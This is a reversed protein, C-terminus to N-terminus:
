FGSPARYTGYVEKMTAMIEGLTCNVSVAHKIVPFLNENSDVANRIQLLAANCKTEDRKNRLEALKKKQNEEINLDAVPTNFEEDKDQKAHNVGIIKREGSDVDTIHKWAVDHIARQQFGLEIAKLAGGKEDIKEILGRADAAIKQTLGEVLYSGALPDAVSAVGSEEAIIQQTRLAVTASKETPLGLAEDYSNTHLSQTGGCVAALAQITVRSINNLPQQATLSVGAVQTHFRMMTSKPNSPNYRETVLENWLQRAARFKAIEEFFDNHCNFFFSLRPAFDDVDLGCRLAADVYELANSITFAIEQVATSGAERIHYGSISISNWKPIHQSCYEFTDTILKMSPKPPFVYTGRAIYEKLIDNQITGRLDDMAVGQEEGVQAYMALLVIAPSNITMSTSIDALNIEDFLERMDSISDIAVGVKGVEGESLSDDSDLGLQTPLDFAVSLGKQGLDLLMKFRNNTQKASGFGAYQRMTWVKSRYMDPHIGRTYPANGPLTIKQPDFGQSEAWLEDAVEPLEIGGLTRKGSKSNSPSQEGM